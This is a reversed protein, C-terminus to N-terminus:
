SPPRAVRAVCGRPRLVPPGELTPSPLFLDPVQLRPLSRERRVGTELFVRGGNQAGLRLLARRVPVQWGRTAPRLGDELSQDLSRERAQAIARGRAAAAGRPGGLAPRGGSGRHAPVRSGVAVDRAAVAVWPRGQRARPSGSVRLQRGGSAEWVDKFFREARPCSSWLTEPPPGIRCCLVSAQGAPGKDHSALARDDTGCALVEWATAGFGWVDLPFDHIVRVGPVGYHALVEPAVYGPTGLKSSGWQPTGPTIVEARGLDSIQVSLTAFAPRTGGRAAAPAASPFSTSVLVNGPKLGCHLVHQAHMHQLGAAIQSCIDRCAASALECDWRRGLFDRLSGDAEPFVLVHEARPPSAPWLGLLPVVNPHACRHCLRAEEKALDADTERKAARWLATKRDVVRVAM